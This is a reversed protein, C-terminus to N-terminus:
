KGDPWLRFAAITSTRIIDGIGSFLSAVERGVDIGQEIEVLLLLDWEGSISSTERVVGKKTRAIRQAVDTAMGPKCRVLIFFQQRPHKALELNTMSITGKGQM